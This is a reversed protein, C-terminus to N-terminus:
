RSIGVHLRVNSVQSRSASVTSMDVFDVRCYNITLDHKDLQLQATALANYIVNEAERVIRAPTLEPPEPRVTTM